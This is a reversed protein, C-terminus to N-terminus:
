PISAKLKAWFGKLLTGLKKSVSPATVIGLAAEDFLITWMDPIAALGFQPQRTGCCLEAIGELLGSQRLFVEFWYELNPFTVVLRRHKWNCISKIRCGDKCNITLTALPVCNDEVPKPCPPLLASCICDRLFDLLFRRIETKVVAPNLVANPPPTLRLKLDLLAQIVTCNHIAHHELFELVVSQLANLQGGNALDNMEQNLRALEQLCAQIRNILEGSDGRDIPAKRLQFTYGECTLTPECQQAPGRTPTRTECKTGGNTGKAHCGCGCQSSGGGSCRSCCAGGSGGRLATIGRSPKEDYCVYLIWEADEDGCLPDPRPWAPDCEWEKENCQKILDCVNVSTDQCVVIDDGCPSLAYGSRVTVFGQCQHCVVELGCAAGWGHLYRNHLKNKEVVYRELRNLDDETLLQGAFFRPRCLCQLGGCAPCVTNAIATKTLMPM